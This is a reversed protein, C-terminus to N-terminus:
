YIEELEQKNKELLEKRQSLKGRFDFNVKVTEQNEDKKELYVHFIRGSECKIPVPEPTIMRPAHFDPMPPPNKVKKMDKQWNAILDEIEKQSPQVPDM